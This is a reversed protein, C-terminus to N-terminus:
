VYEIIQIYAGTPASGAFGTSSNSVGGAGGAGYGGASRGTGPSYDSRDGGGSGFPNSGGKGSRVPLAPSTGTSVQGAGGGEGPSALNVTVGTGPSASPAAGPTGGNGSNDAKGGAPFTFTNTGDSVTTTTSDTGQTFTDDAVPVIGASGVAGITGTWNAPINTTEFEGFSGAAGGGAARNNPNNSGRAGAGAGGCGTGRIIARTCGPTKAFSFAGPTTIVTSKLRLGPILLLESWHGTDTSPPSGVTPSPAYCRYFKDTTAYYVVAGVVYETESANWRPIGRSMFYRLGNTLQNFIWNLYQRKLLSPSVFGTNNLGSSPQVQDAGTTNTNGWPSVILPENLAM